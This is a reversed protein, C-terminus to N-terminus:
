LAMLTDKCNIRAQEKIVNCCKKIKYKEYYVRIYIRSTSGYLIAYFLDEKCRRNGSSLVHFSALFGIHADVADRTDASRPISVIITTAPIHNIELQYDQVM